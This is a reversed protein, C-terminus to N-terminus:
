SVWNCIPIAFRDNIICSYTLAPPHTYGWWFRSLSSFYFIISENKVHFNIILNLILIIICPDIHLIYLSALIACFLVVEALSVFNPLSM